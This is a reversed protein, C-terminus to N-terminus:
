YNIWFATMLVSFAAITTANILSTAPKQTFARLYEHLGIWSPINLLRRDLRIFPCGKYYINIALLFWMYSIIIQKLLRSTTTFYSIIPIILIAYHFVILIFAAYYM